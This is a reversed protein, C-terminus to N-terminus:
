MQWEECFPSQDCDRYWPAMLMAEAVGGAEAVFAVLRMPLALQVSLCLPPPPLPAVWALVGFSGM